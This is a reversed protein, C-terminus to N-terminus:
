CNGKVKSAADTVHARGRRPDGVHQASPSRMSDKAQCKAATVEKGTIKEKEGRPKREQQLVLGALTQTM